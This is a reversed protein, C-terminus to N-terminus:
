YKTVEAVRGADMTVILDSDLITQLRHAITLCTAGQFKSRISKQVVADTELDINATAEDIALVRPARLVARALCILQRQGTSWNGGGEDVAASLGGPHQEAMGPGDLAACQLAAWLAADGHEGFADLNGRLTGVFLVPDQPIIGVTRRLQALSLSAIDVGDILIRGTPEVNTLRFLAVLLSSKGSGSRGCVGVRQGGGIELSLDKLVLPLGARYRLNVNVFSLAGSAPWATQVVAAATGRAVDAANTTIVRDPPV